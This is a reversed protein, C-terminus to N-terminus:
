WDLPPPEPKPEDPDPLLKVIMATAVKQEKDLAVVVRGKRWWLAIAANSLTVSVTWEDTIGFVGSLELMPDAIFKGIKPGEKSDFPRWWMELRNAEAFGATEFWQPWEEDM